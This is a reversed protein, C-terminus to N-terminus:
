RNPSPPTPTEKLAIGTSLCNIFQPLCLLYDVSFYRNKCNDLQKETLMKPNHEHPKSTKPRLPRGPRSAKPFFPDTALCAKPRAPGPFRSM